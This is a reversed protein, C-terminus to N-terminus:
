AQEYLATDDSLMRVYKFLIFPRVETKDEKYEGVHSEVVSPTSTLKYYPPYYDGGMNLEKSWGYRDKFIAKVDDSM